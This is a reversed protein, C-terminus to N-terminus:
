LLSSIMSDLEAPNSTAFLVKGQNNIILFDPIGYLNYAKEVVGTSEKTLALQLWPMNEQKMALKWNKSEKDTSISIITLTSKDYKGYMTKIQPIAKRCWGCWSAWFDIITYGKKNLYQSIKTKASSLTDIVEFDTYMKDKTCIRAQAIAKKFAQYRVVDKNNKMMNLWEDYQADTYCFTDETKKSLLYLSIPYTPHQKIFKMIAEDYRQNALNAKKYKEFAVNSDAAKSKAYKECANYVSDTQIQIAHIYHRYELYTNQTISNTKYKFALENKYPSEKEQGFIFPLMKYDAISIAINSNDVFLLMGRCPPLVAQNNPDIVDDIQLQCMTPSDLHGVLRFSHNKVKAKAVADNGYERLWLRVEVGDKMGPINGTIVFQSSNAMQRTKKNQSFSSSCLLLCGLLIFIIKSPKM